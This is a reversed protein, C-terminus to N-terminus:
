TPCQMSSSGLRSISDVDVSVDVVGHVTVEVVRVTDTEASTLNVASIELTYWRTSM